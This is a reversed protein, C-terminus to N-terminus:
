VSPTPRLPALGTTWWHRADAAAVELNLGRLRAGQECMLIADPLRAFVVNAFGMRAQTQQRIREVKARAEAVTRADRRFQVAEESVYLYGTGRPIRTEPCPCANDSCLGDGPPGPCEFYDPDSRSAAASRAPKGADRRLLTLAWGIM